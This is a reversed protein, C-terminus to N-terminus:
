HTTQDRARGQAREVLGRPGFVTLFQDTPMTSLAEREAQRMRADALAILAVGCAVSNALPHLVRLLQGVPSGASVDFVVNVYAFLGGVGAAVVSSVVAGVVYLTFLATVMSRWTSPALVSARLGCTAAYYILPWALLLGCVTALVAAVGGLLSALLAPAAYALYYPVVADRLGLLKGGLYTPGDIPTLQLSEWTQREREGTVAAACRVVVVLAAVVLAVSTQTIFLTPDPAVASWAARV